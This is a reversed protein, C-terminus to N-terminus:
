KFSEIKNVYNPLPQLGSLRDLINGNKYFIVDLEATHNKILTDESHSIFIKDYLRQNIPIDRIQVDKYFGSETIINNNTKFTNPNYNFEKKLYGPVRPHTCSFLTTLFFLILFKYKM